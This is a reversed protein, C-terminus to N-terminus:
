EISRLKGSPASDDDTDLSRWFSTPPPGPPSQSRSDQIPCLLWSPQTAINWTCRPFRFHLRSLQRADPQRTHPNRRFVSPHDLASQGARHRLRSRHLRHLVARRRAPVRVADAPLSLALTGCDDRLSFEMPPPGAALSLTLPERALNFSGATFTGACVGKRPVNVSLWYDGPQATVTISDPAADMSWVSDFSSPSIANAATLSLSVLDEANGANFATTPTDANHVFRLHITAAQPPELPIRVNAVAHSAVTFEGAGVLASSRRNVRGSFVAFSAQDPHTFGRVLLMYTGNPLSAQLTHTNDDYQATYPLLHGAADMVMATYSGQQSQKGAAAETPTSALATVPYFPELSLSINAEAQAGNAIHIRQAGALDRADPYFVTPYGSRAVRAGSGPAVVSVVPESELAPQTYVAYSGEPLGGFRYAGDGNTKTNSIQTWVSRGFRVVQKLLVLNIGDAPDGTSLEIHGLIACNPSLAFSLEPMQADVLVSHAPGEAQLDPEETSYPRDRFGPKAVRITQPGVAVGPIEFHGDGDTLTGTDADGEIQVLARPLSEGSASNRVVGAITVRAADPAPTSQDSQPASYLGGQAIQASIPPAPLLLLSCCLALALCALMARRNHAEPSGHKQGAREQPNQM